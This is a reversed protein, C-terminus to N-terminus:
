VYMSETKLAFPDNKAAKAYSSMSPVAVSNQDIELYLHVHGWILELKKAIDISYSSERMLLLALV